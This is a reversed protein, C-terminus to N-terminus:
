DLVSIFTIFTSHVRGGIVRHVYNCVSACCLFIYLYVRRTYIFDLYLLSQLKDEWTSTENLFGILCLEM